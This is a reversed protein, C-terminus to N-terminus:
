CTGIRHVKPDKRTNYVKSNSSMCIFHLVFVQFFRCKLLAYWACVKCGKPSVYHSRLELFVYVAM